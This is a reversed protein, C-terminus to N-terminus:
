DQLELRREIREIRARLAALDADRTLESIVLGALHSRMALPTQEISTIREKVQAVDAQVCKLVEYILANTIEAM